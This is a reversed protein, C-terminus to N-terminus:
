KAGVRVYTGGTRGLTEPTYMEEIHTPPVVFRGIHAARALYRFKRIGAPLRDIFYVVRDDRMERREAPTAELSALWPGGVQHALRMPELGGPVPDELVVFRRPERTVVEIECLVVQGPDFRPEAEASAALVPGGLDAVPRFSKTVYFGADLPERPMELRAYRLIAEYHLHGGGVAEFTLPAGRGRLLAPMPVFAARRIKGSEGGLPADALLTDGLFVRAEVPDLPAPNKKRYADLALLAWAAEHTTRYAGGARADVLGRALRAALPHTPNTAVLALLAAADARVSSDFDHVPTQTESARALHAAPGDIRINTELDRLLERAEDADARGSLVFAHLLLARAFLPMRAREGFLARMRSEDARRARALVDLAFAARELASPDAAPFPAALSSVLSRTAHDLAGEPVPLGRRRAEDLGWLAYATIYFDGESSGPWLGFSGDKQQHTLLRDVSTRLAADVDGGKPPNTKEPVLPVGLSDALDRLALLPVM